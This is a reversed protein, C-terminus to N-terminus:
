KEATLIQIKHEQREVVKLLQCIIEVLEAVTKDSLARIEEATM